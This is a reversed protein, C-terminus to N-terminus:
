APPRDSRKAGWIHFTGTVPLRSIAAASRVGPIATLRAQFERHFSARREPDSYRGNPLNVAFTMVRSPQVGLPASRLRQFSQLLLGAGVLLVLAIAVQCIVLANRTGATRTDSANATRLLGFNPV